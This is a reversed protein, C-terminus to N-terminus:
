LERAVKTRSAFSGADIENDITRTQVFGDIDIRVHPFLYNKIKNGVSELERQRSRNFDLQALGRFVHFQRDAIGADSNRWFFQRLDEFTEVAYRYRLASRLLSRSNTQSQHPFQHLQM